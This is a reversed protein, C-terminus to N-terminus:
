IEFYISELGCIFTALKVFILCIIQEPGFSTEDADVNKVAISGM